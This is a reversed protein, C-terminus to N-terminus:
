RNIIGLTIKWRYIEYNRSIQDSFIFQYIKSNKENKKKETFKKPVKWYKKKSSMNISLTKAKWKQKKKKLDWVGNTLSINKM